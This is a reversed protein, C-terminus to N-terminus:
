IFYYSSYINNNMKNENTVLKKVKTRLINDNEFSFKISKRILNYFKKIIKEM